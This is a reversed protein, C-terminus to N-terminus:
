DAALTKCVLTMFDLAAASYAETGDSFDSIAEWAKRRCDPLNHGEELWHDFAAFFRNKAAMQAKQRARMLSDRKLNYVQISQEGKKSVQGNKDEKCTIIGRCGFRLHDRPHDIYPHLLLPDELDDLDDPQLYCVDPWKSSPYPDHLSGEDNHRLHELIIHHNRVPFQTKKGQNSNCFRCSPLLNKWHYALWFYGPHEILTGNEDEARAKSTRETDQQRFTVACKPRFHEADGSQQAEEIHTECYACKGHFVHQLLWKKLDQWISDKFDSGSLQKSSEWTQIIEETAEAAKRQWDDWWTKDEGTLTSPDFDIHIM